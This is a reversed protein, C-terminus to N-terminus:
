LNSKDKLRVEFVNESRYFCVNFEAFFNTQGLILPINEALTWAFVLRTSRLNGITAQLVIGRTEYKALNGSLGTVTTQQEEWVAGLSQGLQYPLVNIDAGTDLLGTTSQIAERYRLTIPVLPRLAIYGESQVSVYPFRLSDAM